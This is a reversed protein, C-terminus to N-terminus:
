AGDSAEAAVGVIEELSKELAGYEALFEEQRLDLNSFLLARRSTFLSPGSTGSLNALNTSSANPTTNATSALSRHPAYTSGLVGAGILQAAARPEFASDQYDPAKWGCLHMAYRIAMAGHVDEDVEAPVDSSVDENLATLSDDGEDGLATAKGSLRSLVAASVADRIMGRLSRTALLYSRIETRIEHLLVASELISRAQGGEKEVLKWSAADVRQMISVRGDSVLGSSSAINGAQPTSQVSSHASQSAAAESAISLYISNEIETQAAAVLVSRMAPVKQTANAIRPLYGLIEKWLKDVVKLLDAVQLLYYITPDVAASADRTSM